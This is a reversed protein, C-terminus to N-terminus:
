ETCREDNCPDGGGITEDLTIRANPAQNSNINSIQCAKNFASNSGIVKFCVNANIKSLYNLTKAVIEPGIGLPDGLTIGLCKKKIVKM